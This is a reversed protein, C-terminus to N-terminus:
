YRITGYEKEGVAKVNNYTARNQQNEAARSQYTGRQPHNQSNEIPQNVEENMQYEPEFIEGRVPDGNEYSLTKFGWLWFFIDWISVVIFIAVFKKGLIDKFESLTGLKM